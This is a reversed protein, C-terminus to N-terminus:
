QWKGCDRHRTARHLNSLFAPVGLRQKGHLRIWHALSQRISRLEAPTRGAPWVRMLWHNQNLM